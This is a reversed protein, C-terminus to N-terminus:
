IFCEDSDPCDECDLNACRSEEDEEYDVPLGQMRNDNERWTKFQEQTIGPHYPGYPKM